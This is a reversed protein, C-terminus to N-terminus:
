RQLTWNDYKNWEAFWYGINEETYKLFPCGCQGYINCYKDPNRLFQQHTTLIEKCNKEVWKRPATICYNCSMDILTEVVVLKNEKLWEKNRFQLVKDDMWTLYPECDPFYDTDWHNLEFYVIEEM